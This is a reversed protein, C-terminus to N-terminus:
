VTEILVVTYYAQITAIGYIVVHLSKSLPIEENSRYQPVSSFCNAFGKTSPWTLCLFGSHHSNQMALLKTLHMCILTSMRVYSYLYVCMCCKFHVGCVSVSLCVSICVYECSYPYVPLMNYYLVQRYFVKIYHFNQCVATWFMKASLFM